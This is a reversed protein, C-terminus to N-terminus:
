APTERTFFTPLRPDDSLALASRVARAQRVMAAIRGTLCQVDAAAVSMGTPLVIVRASVQETVPLTRGAQPFLGAYPQMRHCGPHFYRRALVNELRLAAVLEDRSLGAAAADVEIVVYHFNSRGAVDLAMVRIGPLGALGARYAAYNARNHDVIAAMSDISTLGMAACAESMKGNTGLYAVEDEGAFGFNVMLRLRDALATDNTVIAGGEFSHVCKTAHFSFVEADGHSGIPGDADGCGFAHAADFLLRLGHLEAIAELRRTAANNGWVHVGLIGTTRSTIAAEVADADLCHTEPDIDCFVPRVGQRWLAHVTAVFTYAPVIVDGQMGLADVALELGVTANCTAVCHRTGAAVAVRQEFEQVMPGHNTLRGSDLVRDLRELFGARNPMNPRGVCLTEAFAPEGGLIALEPEAELTALDPEGCPIALEPGADVIAPVPEDGLMAFEPERDPEIVVAAVSGAPRRRRPESALVGPVFGAAEWEKGFVGSM